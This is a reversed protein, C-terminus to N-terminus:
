TRRRIDSATISRSCRFGHSMCVYNPEERHRNSCRNNYQYNNWSGGRFVRYKEGFKDSRHLSQAYPKYTDSTWEWVNGLCDLVGYPSAGDLYQGVPTTTHPGKELSNLRAPDWRNGWSYKRGDTGRAAKEWEAESPLRKDAWRAYANADDWSVMVAPHTEKGPTYHRRWDGHAKYNTANVFKEFQENTVPYKDMLYAETTVRAMPAEDAFWSKVAKPHRYRALELAEEVQADSAGMLFEGEPIFIMESYDRPHVIVEAKRILLSALGRNVVIADLVEESPPLMELGLWFYRSYELVLGLYYPLDRSPYYGRAIYEPQAANQWGLHKLYSTFHGSRLHYKGSEPDSLCEAAVEQISSAKKGSRFLFPDRGLIVEIQSRGMEVVQRVRVERDYAGAESKKRLRNMPLDIREPTAGVLIRKTPVYIEYQRESPKGDSKAIPMVCRFGNVNVCARALNRTRNACRANHGFSDWSGGRLIRYKEGFDEDKCPSGPYPKYWDDVWEWVNGAMDAVGYVSVGMGYHGVCTTTGHGREGSNLRTPDWENGWPWKRADSGRAAKEWEAETPLRKGAWHCYARADNWSVLVVPHDMKDEVTSDPGTPHRWCAGPIERWESQWIWGKGAEEAETTYNTAQVFRLFEANTVPYKDVYYADVYVKHMPKENDDKDDSGMWFEGAPIYVMEKLDRGELTFEGSTLKRGAAPRAEAAPSTTSGAREVLHVESEMQGRRVEEAPREATTAPELDSSGTRPMPLRAPMNRIPLPAVVEQEAPVAAAVVAPAASRARAKLIRYVIGAAGLLTGGALFVYIYIVPISVVSEGGVVGLLLQVM